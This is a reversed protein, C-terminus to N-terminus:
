SWFDKRCLGRAACYECAKGEGLAPLPAGNAIRDMDSLIGGILDDRLEVIKDQSYTTTPSTEGLSVYSAALTDDALLAAYFALQTDESGDKIRTRTKDSAETKYDIVWRSGDPLHDIRDIKGVLNLRGLPMNKWVEGEAYTAGSAEHKALWALYGERVSPWIAAFPLFEEATLKLAQKSQEAAINLMAARAPLDKAPALKLAEHFAHLLGHLWNGFDRKDLESELEDAEQLKLLRLAFFRYPCRRLDEYASASLNSVPLAQGTPQPHLTPLAQLVRQPRADAALAQPQRLQLAQVFGSPMLREGGESVRWLVDLRPMTLAYEWAAHQAQALQARSPLGLLARQLETWQGPPEPAVPLRVEDCGPFVVAQLPRGLLQTFPLVVVAPQPPHAPKFIAAELTQTVWATFDALSMLPNLLATVENAQNLQLAAIVKVGAADLALPEWQGSTQLAARLDALWDALARARQLTSRIAEFQASVAVFEPQATPVGRWQRLGSKRLAAEAQSVAAADFAPANKLADIVADTTADWPMARLLTILTAAARTTSLTWGTEDRVPVGLGALLAGVRRTLLRDQAVLGVPGRGAAVHALVCAAARHAEDELDQAAHLRLQGVQEPTKLTISVSREYFHSKLADALPEAQFGDLVVLLDVEAAIDASYLVDTPYSSASAWALAIRALALELELASAAMGSDIQGASRMGWALRAAPSQAAALKALSSAAEVLRGQLAEKQSGLGARTLLSAATLCDHAADLRLDEPGYAFGRVAGAWNLTTEFRPVFASPQGHQKCFAAWADKAEAMLQAFPVLVVARSPHVQKDRLVSCLQAMVDPWQANDSGSPADATASIPSSTM